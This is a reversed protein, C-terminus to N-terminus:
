VMVKYSVFHYIGSPFLVLTVKSHERPDLDHNHQSPMIKSAAVYGLNNTSTNIFQNINPIFLNM